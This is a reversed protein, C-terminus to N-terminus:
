LNFYGPVPFSNISFLGTKPVLSVDTLVDVIIERFTEFFFHYSSRSVLDFNRRMICTPPEFNDSVLNGLSKQSKKPIGHEEELKEFYKSATFLEGGERARSCQISYREFREKGTYIQFINLSNNYQSVNKSAYKRLM